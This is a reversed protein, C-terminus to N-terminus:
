IIASEMTRIKHLCMKSPMAALWSHMNASYATVRWVVNVLTLDRTVM